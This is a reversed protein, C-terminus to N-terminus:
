NECKSVLVEHARTRKKAHARKIKTARAEEYRSWLVESMDALAVTASALEARYNTLRQAVDYLHGHKSLAGREATESGHWYLRWPAFSACHQGMDTETAGMWMEAHVHTVPEISPVVVLILQFGGTRPIDMGVLRKLGSTSLDDVHLVCGINDRNTYKITQGELRAKVLEEGRVRVYLEM